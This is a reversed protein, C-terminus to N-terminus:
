RAKFVGQKLSNPTQGRFQAGSFGMALDGMARAALNLWEFRVKGYHEREVGPKQPAFSSHQLMRGEACLDFDLGSPKYYRGMGDPLLPVVKGGTAVVAAKAQKEGPSIWSGVVVAGREPETVLTIMYNCKRDYWWGTLGKHRMPTESLTQCCAEGTM